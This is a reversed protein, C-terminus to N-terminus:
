GVKSLIIKTISGNTKLVKSYKDRLHQVISEGFKFNKLQLLQEVPLPMSAYFTNNQNLINQTAGNNQSKRFLQRSLLM